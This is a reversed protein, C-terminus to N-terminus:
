ADALESEILAWRAPDIARQSVVDAPQGLAKEIDTALNVFRLGITPAVEVLVDVDSDVGAEGRATSGFLALRGLPYRAQLEPKIRSLIKLATDRHM